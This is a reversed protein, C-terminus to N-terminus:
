RAAGTEIPGSRSRQSRRNLERGVNPRADGVIADVLSAIELDRLAAEPNAGGEADERAASPIGYIDHKM